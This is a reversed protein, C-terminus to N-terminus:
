DSIVEPTSVRMCISISVYLYVCMCVCMWVCVCVCVCVCVFVCLCVCVFVHMGVIWVPDFFGAKSQYHAWESLIIISISRNAKM